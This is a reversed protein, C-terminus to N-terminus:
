VEILENFWKKKYLEELQQDYESVFRTKKVLTGFVFQTLNVRNNDLENMWTMYKSVISSANRKKRPNQHAKKMKEFHKELNEVLAKMFRHTFVHMLSRYGRAKCDRWTSSIVKVDCLWKQNNNQRVRITKSRPFIRDKIIQTPRQIANTNQCMKIGIGSLNANSCYKYFVDNTDFTPVFYKWFCYTNKMRHHCIPFTLSKRKMELKKPCNVTKGVCIKPFMTMLEEVKNIMIPNAISFNFKSILRHKQLDTWHSFSHIHEWVDFPMLKCVEIIKLVHEQKEQYEEDTLSFVNIVCDIKRRKIM